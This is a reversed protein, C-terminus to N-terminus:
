RESTEVISGDDVEVESCDGPEKLGEFSRSHLGADAGGEVDKAGLIGACGDCLFRYTDLPIPHPEM